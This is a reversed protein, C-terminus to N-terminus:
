AGRGAVPTPDALPEWDEGAAILCSSGDPLTMVITWSGSAESAWVEMVRQGEAVGVGRRREGCKSRLCDVVKAGDACVGTQDAVTQAAM